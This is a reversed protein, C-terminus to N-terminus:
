LFMRCLHNNLISIDPERSFAVQKTKYRRSGVATIDKIFHMSFVKLVHIMYGYVLHCQPAGLMCITFAVYLHSTPTSYNTTVSQNICDQRQRAGSDRPRIGGDPRLHGRQRRIVCRSKPPTEPLQNQNAPSHVLMTVCMQPSTQDSLLCFFGVLDFRTNM